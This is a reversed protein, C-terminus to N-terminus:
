LHWLEDGLPMTIKCNLKEVSTAAPHFSLPIPWGFIRDNVILIDKKMVTYTSQIQWLVQTKKHEMSSHIDHPNPVDYINCHM